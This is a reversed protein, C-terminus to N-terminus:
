ASSGGSPTPIPVIRPSAQNALPGVVSVATEESVPFGTRVISSAAGTSWTVAPRPESQTVGIPAGVTTRMSGSVPSSSARIESLPSEPKRVALPSAIQTASGCWHSRPL